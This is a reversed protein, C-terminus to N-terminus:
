YKECQLFGSPKVDFHNVPVCKPPPRRPETVISVELAGSLVFYLKERVIVSTCGGIQQFTIGSM